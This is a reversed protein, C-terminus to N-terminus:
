RAVGRTIARYNRAFMFRQKEDRGLSAPGSQAAYILNFYTGHITQETLGHLAEYITQENSIATGADLSRSVIQFSPYDVTNMGVGVSLGPQSGPTSYVCVATDPDSPLHEEFVVTALAGIALDTAVYQAISDTPTAM